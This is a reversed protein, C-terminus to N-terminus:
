DIIKVYIPNYQDNVIKCNQVDGYNANLPSTCSWIGFMLLFGAIFGMIYDITRKTISKM